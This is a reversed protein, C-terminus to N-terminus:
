RLGLMQRAAGHDPQLRLVSQLLSRAQANRGTLQLLRALNFLAPVHEGDIQLARRLSREAKGRDGLMAAAVGQGTLAHINDPEHHLAKAFYSQASRIVAGGGRQAMQLECMGVGVYADVLSRHQLKAAIEPSAPQPEGIDGLQRLAKQFSKLAEDVRPPNERLLANGQMVSLAADKPAFRMGHAILSQQSQWRTCQWASLAAFGLALLLLALQRPRRQQAWFVLAAALSFVAPYLYRDSVPHAGLANFRVTVLLIPALLLAALLWTGPRRKLWALLGVTAFLLLYMRFVHGAPDFMLPVTRFPTMPWPWILTLLLESCVWFPAVMARGGRMSPDIQATDLGAAANGFVAMRAGFYIALVLLGPLVTRILRSKRSPGALAPNQLAADHENGTSDGSRERPKGPVSLVAAAVVLLPTVLANEKALLALLTLSLALWPLGIAGRRRWRLTAWIAALSLGGYLVDNLASAWAVSEVQVPHVGFLLAALGAGIPALGLERAIGFAATVAGLHLLLALAHIGTPGGIGDGLVLLSSALPRWYPAGSGFFPEFLLRSWGDTEAIRTAREVVILDDYVYGGLLAPAFAAAVLFLVPILIRPSV